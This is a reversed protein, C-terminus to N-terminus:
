QHKPKCSRTGSRGLCKQGQSLYLRTTKNSSGHWFDNGVTRQVDDDTAIGGAKGLCNFDAGVTKGAVFRYGKATGISSRRGVVKKQSREAGASRHRNRKIRASSTPRKLIHGNRQGVRFNVRDITSLALSFFSFDVPDLTLDVKGSGKSVFLPGVEHFNRVSAGNM